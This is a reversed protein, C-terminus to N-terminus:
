SWLSISFLEGKYIDRSAWDDPTVITTSVIHSKLDKFGLHELQKLIVDMYDYKIEGWNIGPHSSSAPVLVYVTSHGDPAMSPDTVCANQAYVSPDDWTVKNETM